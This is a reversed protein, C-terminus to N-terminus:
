RLSRVVAFNLGVEGKALSKEGIGLRIPFGVLESDQIERRGNMRTMSSSMGGRQVLEAYIKKKLTM